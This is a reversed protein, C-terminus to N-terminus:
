NVIRRLNIRSCLFLDVDKCARLGLEGIMWAFLRIQANKSREILPAPRTRNAPQRTALRDAGSCPDGAGAWHLWKGSRSTTGCLRSWGDEKILCRPEIM